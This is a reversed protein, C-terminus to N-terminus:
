GTLLMMSKGRLQLVRGKFRIRCCFVYCLLFSFDSIKFNLISFLMCIYGHVVVKLSRAVSVLFARAYYRRSCHIYLRVATHKQGKSDRQSHPIPRFGFCYVYTVLYMAKYWIILHNKRNQYGFKKFLQKPYCGVKLYKGIGGGKM